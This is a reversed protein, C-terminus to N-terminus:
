TGTLLRFGNGNGGLGPAGHGRNACRVGEETVGWSGGRLVRHDGSAPGPPNDYPSSSYYLSDYWDNCWEWVGGAVDYLGYGNAMDVGEPWQSGNYYGVPTTYPYETEFPDGSEWYNAMSGDIGSGWPYMYYPDHEGGRAACEWEAETPLRYGPLDLNCAWTSLDYCLPRSQQASRYNAYAAAGYWSVQVMPHDEKGATVTFTAGDWHIRSDDDSAYTDCYLETDDAKYVKGLGDVEILGQGYAWNLYACYQENTVEYIDMYFPDVYVSHPPLEDAAGTGVHRGMEFEGGPVRVTGPPPLVPDTFGQQFMTFDDLDTDCDLDLDGVPRGEADVAAGAPTFNCVDFADDVGDGDVDGARAMTAAGVLTFTAALALIAAPRQWRM